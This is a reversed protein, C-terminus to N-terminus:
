RPPCHPVSARVSGQSHSPYILAVASNQGADSGRGEECVQQQGGSFCTSQATKDTYGPIGWERVQGSAVAESVKATRAVIRKPQDLWFGRVKPDGGSEPGGSSGLKRGESSHKADFAPEGKSDRQSFSGRKSLTQM